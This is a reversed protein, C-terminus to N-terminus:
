HKARNTGADMVRLNGTSNDMPNGNKHDVDKGDGKHVRGLKALLRRALVRKSREKRHQPTGHFDNYEEKYNRKKAEALFTKGISEYRESMLKEYDIQKEVPIDRGVGNIYIRNVEGNTEKDHYDHLDHNDFTVLDPTLNMFQLLKYIDTDIWERADKIYGAQDESSMDGSRPTEETIYSEMIFHLLPNHSFRETVKTQPSSLLPLISYAKEQMYVKSMAEKQKMGGNVLENVKGQRADEETFVRVGDVSKRIEERLTKIEGRLAKTASETTTSKSKDEKVRKEVEKDFILDLNQEEQTNISKPSTNIRIGVQIKKSLDNTIESFACDTGDKSGSLIVSASAISNGFKYQGSLSHFLLEKNFNKGFSDTSETIKRFLDNAKGRFSKAFTEINNQKDIVNEGLIGRPTKDTKTANELEKLLPKWTDDILKTQSKKCTSCDTVTESGLVQQILANADGQASGAISRSDGIKTSVGIIGLSQTNKVFGDVYDQAKKIAGETSAQPPSNATIINQLHWEFAAIRQKESTFKGNPDVYSLIMSRNLFLLDSRPTNDTGGRSNYEPITSLSINSSPIAYQNQLSGIGGPINNKPSGDKNVILSKVMRASSPLLTQSNLFMPILEKPIKQDELLKTLDKLAKKEEPLVDAGVSNSRMAQQALPLLQLAGNLQGATTLNIAYADGIIRDSASHESDSYISGNKNDSGNERPPPPQIIPEPQVEESDEKMSTDKKKSEKKPSEKKPEKKQKIPAIKTLQGLLYESSDTQKFKGIQFKKSVNQADAMSVSGAGIIQSHTSPNFSQKNIIMSQGTTNKVVMLNDLYSSVNSKVKERHKRQRDATKSRAIEEKQSNNSDSGGKKPSKLRNELLLNSLSPFEFSSNMRIRQLRKTEQGAMRPIRSKVMRVLTPKRRNISADIRIRSALSIKSWPRGGTLRSRLATKVQSYARKALQSKNKRIKRRMFRKRARRSSTRKAARRLKMRTQMSVIEHLSQISNVPNNSFSLFEDFDFWSEFEEKINPMINRLEDFIKRINDESLEIPINLRFGSFNGQKAHWLALNSIIDGM